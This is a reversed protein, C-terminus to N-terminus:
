IKFPIISRLNCHKNPKIIKIIFLFTNSKDIHLYRSTPAQPSYSGFDVALSSWCLRANDFPIKWEGKFIKTKCAHMLDLSPYALSRDLRTILRTLESYPHCSILLKEDRITYDKAVMITYSILFLVSICGM